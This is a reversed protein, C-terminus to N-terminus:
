YAYDGSYYHQGQSEDNENFFGGEPYHQRGKKDKGAVIKLSEKRDLQPFGLDKLKKM